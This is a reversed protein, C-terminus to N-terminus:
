ADAGNQKSRQIHKRRANKNWFLVWLVTELKQLTAVNPQEFVRQLSIFYCKLSKDKVTCSGNVSIGLSITTSMIFIM